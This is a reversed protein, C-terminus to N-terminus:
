LSDMGTTASCRTWGVYVQEGARLWLGARLRWRTAEATRELTFPHVADAALCPEAQRIGGSFTGDTSGTNRVSIWKVGNPEAKKELTFGAQLSRQELVAKWTGSSWIRRDGDVPLRFWVYGALQPLPRRQLEAMLRAVEAPEAMLESSDAPLPAFDESVVGTVTGDANWAVRSGYNPLALRFRHPAIRAYDRAWRLAIGAQFLGLQPRMVSHVQLVSSDVQALVRPLAPSGIWAPLATMSLQWDHPLNTRVQKLVAAYEPLRSTPCDYDVELGAWDEPRQAAVWAFLHQQVEPEEIGRQGSVRIVAIPRQLRPPRSTPLSSNFRVTQWGSPAAAEAVLLRFGNVSAPANAIATSVAPTWVRQWIYAQHDPPPTPAPTCAPLLTVAGLLVLAFVPAIYHHPPYPM